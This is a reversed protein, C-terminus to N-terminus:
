GRECGAKKTKGKGGKCVDRGAGANIVDRGGGAIIRDNGDGACIIDKGAGARILDNGGRTIIVDKGSTGRITENRNTAILTGVRGNCTYPGTSRYGPQKATYLAKVADGYYPGFSINKVQPPHGHSVSSVVFTKQIVWGGGSSGGKMDCGLGVSPQRSHPFDRVARSTCRILREGNFKKAPAAPYGYAEYRQRREQNFGVGRAGIVDEVGTGQTNPQLRVFASDYDLSARRAWEGTTIGSAAPWVGFPASGDKYGPVFVFNNSFQNSAGADFVCHGATTLLSKSESAIVTGSCSYEGLGPYEAFIKGHIRNPDATTNGLEKSMFPVRKAAIAAPGDFLPAESRLEIPATARMREPTWYAAASRATHGGGLEGAVPELAAGASPPGLLLALACAGIAAGPGRRIWRNDTSIGAM